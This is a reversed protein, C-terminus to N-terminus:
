KTECKDRDMAKPRSLIVCPHIRIDPSHPSSQVIEIGTSMMGLVALGNVTKVFAPGGSCGKIEVSQDPSDFQVFLGETPIGKGKPTRITRGRFTTLVPMVSGDDFVPGPLYGFLIVPTGVPVSKEFASNVAVSSLRAMRELDGREARNPRLMSWDCCALNPNFEQLRLQEVGECGRQLTDLGIIEGNYVLSPESPLSDAVHRATFIVPESAVQSDKSGTPLVVIVGSGLGTAAEGSRHVSTIAVVSGRMVALEQETPEWQSTCGVPLIWVSFCASFLWRIM